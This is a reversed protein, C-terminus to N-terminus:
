QTPRACRFGVNADRNGPASYDRNAARLYIANLAWSGGRLVRNAASDTNACNKCLKGGNTYYGDSYWDFVWEWMSGALDMHGFMGVGALYSGVAITPKSGNGYYNARTTGPNDRGWPYLRNAQGGAAAYEWEAETPLRGGDWICYALAEYWSVCNIPHAENTDTRRM